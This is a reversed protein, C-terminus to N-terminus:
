AYTFPSGSANIVQWTTNAVICVVTMWDYQVASTMSGGSTSTQGLFKITQGTNATLVFGGSTAASVGVISGVAATAPLTVTCAGSNTCIYGTNVAAAQTTGSATTYPVLGPSGSYIVTGGTGFSVSSSDTGTFTLTNSCTFTKGDAVAVTSGTAPATFAVKNISTVTAVGLTPTILTPSTAGVFNGSGTVGSLGNNLINITAM